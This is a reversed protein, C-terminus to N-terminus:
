RSYILRSRGSSCFLMECNWSVLSNKLSLKLKETKLELKWTLVSVCGPECAGCLCVRFPSQTYYVVCCCCPTESVNAADNQKIVAHVTQTHFLIEDKNKSMSINVCAAKAVSSEKSEHGKYSRLLGEASLKPRQHRTTVHNFTDTLVLDDM